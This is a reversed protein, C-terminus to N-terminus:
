VEPEWEENNEQENTEENNTDMSLLTNLENLRMLNKNLEDEQPFPKKIEEKALKLQDRTDQISMECITIDKSINNLTNDIRLINGAPDAGLKISCKTKNKLSLKLGDFGEYTAIMKFGAYDGINYQRNDKIKKSLELLKNGADKKETYSCSNLVMKFDDKLPKHDNWQKEDEMLAKLLETKNSIRQPYAKLINDEMRYCQNIFNAKILKLKTVKIDLNMKEKIYPNGTALAKVEAYSLAQEDVDECSRGAIKSTM